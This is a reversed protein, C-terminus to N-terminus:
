FGIAQKLGNAQKIKAENELARILRCDHTIRDKSFFAFRDRAVRFDGPTLHRISATDLGELRNTTAVFIGTFHEMASLFENVFSIEWSGLYGASRNLPKKM